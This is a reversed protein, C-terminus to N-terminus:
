PRRVLHAPNVCLKNSCTRVLQVRPPLPAVFMRYLATHVQDHKGDLQAM